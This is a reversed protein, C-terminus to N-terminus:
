KVAELITPFASERRAEEWLAGIDLYRKMVTEVVARDAMRGSFWETAADAFISRGVAFGRVWRSRMAAAFSERLQDDGAEMGLVLVGRCHPDHRDIVADIAHWAAADTAPPLKWWDPRIGAAYLAELARAM